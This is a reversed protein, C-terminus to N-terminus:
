SNSPLIAVLKGLLVCSTLYKRLAGRNAPPSPGDVVDVLGPPMALRLAAGGQRRGTCGPKPM